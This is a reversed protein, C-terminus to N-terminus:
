FTCINEWLFYPTRWFYLWHQSRLSSGHIKSLQQKLGIRLVETKSSHLTLLNATM